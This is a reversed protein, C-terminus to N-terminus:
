KDDPAPKTAFAVPHGSNKAIQTATATGSGSRHQCPQLPPSMEVRQLGRLSLAGTMALALSAIEGKGTMGPARRAFGSDRSEPNSAKADGRFSLSHQTAEDSASRAIVAAANVAQEGREMHHGGRREDARGGALLGGRRGEGLSGQRRLEETAGGPCRQQHRDSLNGARNGSRVAREAPCGAHSAPSRIPPSANARRAARTRMANLEGSLM